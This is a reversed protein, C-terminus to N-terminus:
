LYDTSYTTCKRTDPFMASNDSNWSNGPSGGDESNLSYEVRKSLPLELSEGGDANAQIVPVDM